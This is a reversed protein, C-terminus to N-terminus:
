RRRSRNASRSYLSAEIRTLRQQLQLYREKGKSLANRM